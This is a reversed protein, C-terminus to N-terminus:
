ASLHAFTDWEDKPKWVVNGRVIDDAVEPDEQPYEPLPTRVLCVVPIAYGSTSTFVSDVQASRNLFTVLAVPRARAQLILEVIENATSFNNSVDEVIAVREGAGLEHRAWVLKSKERSNETAVEIVKKEPYCYRATLLLALKDALSKGGEPAGLYVDARETTLLGELLRHAFRYVIGPYQEVKAFNAYIDGVFQKGTKKDRGAYAVLPGTRKGDAGKPCVYCGGCAKLIALPDHDYERLLQSVQPEYLPTM